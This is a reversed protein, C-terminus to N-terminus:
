KVRQFDVGESYYGNSEGLWRIWVHGVTTQIKYFTWTYSDPHEPTEVDADNVEDVSVVLGGIMDSEDGDVDAILVSECCDQQHHMIYAAGCETGIRVEDSDVKLGVVSKIVKGELDSFNVDKM